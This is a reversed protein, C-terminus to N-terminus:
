MGHGRSGMTIHKDNKNGVKNGVLMSVFTFAFTKGAGLVFTLGLLAIVKMPQEEYHGSFSEFIVSLQGNLWLSAFKIAVALFCALLFYKLVIESPESKLHKLNIRGHRKSVLLGAIFPGILLLCAYIAKAASDSVSVFYGSWGMAVPIALQTAVILAVVQYTLTRDM